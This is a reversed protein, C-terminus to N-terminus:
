RSAALRDALIGGIRALPGPRTMEDHGCRIDHVVIQGDVYPRWGDAPSTHAPRGLTAAFYLLDGAFRGRVPERSLRDNNVLVDVLGTLHREALDALAPDTGAMRRVAAIVEREDPPGPATPEDPQSDLMALLAVREGQRQLEVAVAHAVQGGFSWGMLHYPGTSQVKRIHPLYTAVLEDM